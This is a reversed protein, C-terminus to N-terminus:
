AARGGRVPVPRWGIGACGAAEDGTPNASGRGRGGRRGGVNFSAGRPGVTYSLGSRSINARIDDLVNVGEVLEPLPQPRFRGTREELSNTFLAFYNRVEDLRSQQSKNDTTLENLRALQESM